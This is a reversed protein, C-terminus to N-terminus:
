NTKMHQKIWSKFENATMKTFGYKTTTMDSEGELIKKIEEQYITTDGYFCMFM